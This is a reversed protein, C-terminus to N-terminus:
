RPVMIVIACLALAVGVWHQPKLRERFVVGGVLAGAAIVGINMASFVLVPNEPFHQHARIYFLINGFNALGLVVGGAADRVTWRVRMLALATFAVVGSILFAGLLGVPFSTGTQAIQKFLIDILGYGLWVALPWLWVARGLKPIDDGAPAGSASDGPRGSLLCAMAAFAVVIGTATQTTLAEGFILFAAALPIFLSLRQAADSLVIGAHRVSAAMALFVSPLLVGLALLVGWPTGPQLLMQPDPRLILACLTAATVYNVAIAQRVDVRWRRALKLLIAVLISCLISGALYGM